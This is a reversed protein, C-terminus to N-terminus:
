ALIARKTRRPSCLGLGRQRGAAGWDITLTVAIPTAMRRKSCTSACASARQRNGHDYAFAVAADGHDADDDGRRRDRRARPYRWRRAPLTERLNPLNFHSADASGYKTGIVAFLTAYTTTDLSSGDCILWNTPPTAAFWLAGSGVPVGSQVTAQQNDYVQQDIKQTTANLTGGWTNASAGPDPMTWGYHSTTTEAM